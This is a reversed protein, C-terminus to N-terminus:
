GKTTLLQKLNGGLVLAKEDESLSSALIPGIAASLYRLPSYSAFVLKQAGDPVNDRIAELAGPALLAATEIYITADHRMVSIAEGLQSSSVGSLLVPIRFDKVMDALASIEGHRNTTVAVPIGLEDCRKLAERFPAFHLPWCQREPFFRFLRFGENTRTEAEQLCEPFARPDLTAVPFLQQPHQRAVAITELNGQRYDHFIGVTSTALSRVIGNSAMGSLLTEVSLDTTHQPWPGFLTCADLIAYNAMFFFTREGM